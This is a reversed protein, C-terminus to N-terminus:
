CVPSVQILLIGKNIMRAAIASTDSVAQVVEAGSDVAVGSGIAALLVVMASPRKNGIFQSSWAKV